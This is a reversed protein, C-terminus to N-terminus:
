PRNQLSRATDISYLLLAAWIMVFSMAQVGGFPERFVLVALLFQLSPALYQMFGITALRLRRAGETFWVLPLATVPGAALLILTAREGAVGFILSGSYASYGLWALALPALLLTEVALGTVGGPRAIKRLLGYLGFTCALVLAIWPMTGTGVALFIVGVTALGVALWQWLRLREKLFVFGLLVSVLPNIFYGLSAELLRGNFVSWIFVLWNVAILITTVSLIGLSRRDRLIEAVKGLRGRGWQILVLFVLSWLIRHALVEVPHVFAVAKFYLPIFGWAIYAGLGYAVGSRPRGPPNDPIARAHSALVDASRSNASM